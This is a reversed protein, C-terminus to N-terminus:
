GRLFLRTTQVRFTNEVNSFKVGLLVERAKSTIVGLQYCCTVNMTDNSTSNEVISAAITLVCATQRSFLRSRTVFSPFHTVIAFSPTTCYFVSALLGFGPCAALWDHITLM